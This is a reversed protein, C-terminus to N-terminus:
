PIKRLILKLPQQWDNELNITTDAEVYGERRAKIAHQGPRLALQKPASGRYKGDVSIEGLVPTSTITLKYIKTFDIPIDLLMETEINVTKEWIASDSNVVRLRYTGAPLEQSFPSQINKAYLKGDIFISGSPLVLVQLTGVRPTLGADPKSASDSSGAVPRSPLLAVNKKLRYVLENNLGQTLRFSGKISTYGEASIEIRHLGVPFTIDVLRARPTLKGDLRFEATAPNAKISVRAAPKLTFTFISDQGQRVAFATDLSFYDPKQLRLKITSNNSISSDFRTVGVPSGDFFVAAGPPQSVIRVTALDARPSAIEQLAFVLPWNIGTTVVILTDITSYGPKSIKLSIKGAPVSTNPIPTTGIFKDNLLAAAGEPKTSISIVSTAAEAPWFYTRIGLLDAIFGIIPLIVGAIAFYKRSKRWLNSISKQEQNKEVPPPPIPYLSKTKLLNDQERVLETLLGNVNQYRQQLDKNLTKDVIRQLGEPVDQRHRTLAEPEKNKIADMTEERYIGDFPRKLTILEYLVIGLSFIDSRQDLKELRVQEPSMYEPTGKLGGSLSGSTADVLKALGFDSIKATGEEGVLINGPKIDRHIVGNKHAEQLGRCVPIIFEFVQQVSLHDRLADLKERLSRGEIYEMVIFYKSQGYKDFDFFRVINEHALGLLVKAELKFRDNLSPDNAYEDRLFKIAVQHGLNVDEALYVVGIGGGGLKRLIKYHSITKGILDNQSDDFAPMTAFADITVTEM